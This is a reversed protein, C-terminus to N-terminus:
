YAISGSFSGKMRSDGPNLAARLRWGLDFSISFHGTVSTRIGLGTGAMAPLNIDSVLPHKYSVKGYDFFGLLQTNIINRSSKKLFPIHAQWNPTHLEQNLVWGQDAALTQSYGRVTSGGGIVIQESGQLNTTSLQYQARSIWLFGLPLLLNREAAIRGYVYRSAKGTNAGTSNIGYVTETNRSNFNGPSLDTNISLSWSGLSDKKTINEGIILQAVDYTSIPQSYEGFSLNTNIKKYDLIVSSTYAWAGHLKSKIYGIDAVVNTAKENLGAYGMLSRPEVLSYAFDVKLNDHWPLPIKYDLSHSQFYKPTNNTSFQYNLENDLNWLNGMQANLSYASNGLPSNLANSYSAAIRLPEVEQVTIDLDAEGTPKGLTDVLVQVQRFSNQNAWNFAADLKSLKIEDGPEIGLRKTLLDDSFWRNGKFHLKNFHGIIVGMRVEGTVLDLSPTITDIIPRDHSKGFAVIEARLQTILNITIPKGKYHDAIEAFEKSSFLPLRFSEVFGSKTTPKLKSVSSASDSIILKKFPYYGLAIGIKLLGGETNQEPILAGALFEGHKEFYTTLDILLKNVLEPTIPKDFYPALTHAFAPTGLKPDIGDLIIQGSTKDPIYTGTCRDLSGLYLRSLKYAGFVVVIRLAGRTITQHPFFVSVLIQGKSKCYDEISHSLQSLSQTSVPKNFYPELVASFEKSNLLPLDVINIRGQLTEATQSAVKEETNSLIFRSINTSEITRLNSFPNAKISYVNLLSTTVFIFYKFYKKILSSM